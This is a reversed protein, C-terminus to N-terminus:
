DLCPVLTVWIIMVDSFSFFLWSLQAELRSFAKNTTQQQEVLLVVPM